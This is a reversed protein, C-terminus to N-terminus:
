AAYCGLLAFIEDVDRRFGSIVGFLRPKIGPPRLVMKKELTDVAVEHKGLEKILVIIAAPLLRGPSFRVV